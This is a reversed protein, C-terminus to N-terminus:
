EYLGPLPFVTFLERNNLSQYDVQGVQFRELTLRDFHRWLLHKHSTVIGCCHFLSWNIPTKMLKDRNGVRFDHLFYFSIHAATLLSTQTRSRCKQLNLTTLYTQVITIILHYLKCLLSYSRCALVYGVVQLWWLSHLLLSFLTGTKRSHTYKDMSPSLNIWTPLLPGVEIVKPYCSSLINAPILM